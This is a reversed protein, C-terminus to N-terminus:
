EVSFCYILGPLDHGRFLYLGYEGPGLDQAPLLKYVGNEVQRKHFELQSRLSVGSSGKWEGETSIEFERHGHSIKLKVLVLDGAGGSTESEASTRYYFVPTSQVKLEATEGPIEGNVIRRGRKGLTAKSKLRSGGRELSVAGGEIRTLGKENLYYLGAEHPIQLPDVALLVLFYAQLGLM